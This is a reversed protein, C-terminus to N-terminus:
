HALQFSVGITNPGAHAGIVPGLNSVVLEHACDASDLLVKLQDSDSASGSAMALRELRGAMLAKSALYELARRRSRQRSEAEVVGGRLQVIPKISLLSGFFAQAGGIRGGRKLFELSGIVAFLRTRERMDSLESAIDELTRGARALDAAAMVMLGLGMSASLSDVVQVAIRDAVTRAATVAAEYTASLKSSLNVCIVGSARKDAADLFARQFAGPSPASTEPMTQDSAVRAWFQETSLERYEESGFRITLPVVSIDRENAMEPPLDCAGDTVVSIGPM